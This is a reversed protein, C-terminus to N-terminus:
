FEFMSVRLSWFYTLITNLTAHFLKQPIIGAVVWTGEINFFMSFDQGVERAEEENGELVTSQGKDLM